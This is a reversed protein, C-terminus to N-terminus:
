KMSPIYGELILKISGIDRREYCQFTIWMSHRMPLVWMQPTHIQLDRVSGRMRLWYKSIIVIAMMVRDSVNDPVAMLTGVSVCMHLLLGILVYHTCQLEQASFTFSAIGSNSTSVIKVWMDDGWCVGLRVCFLRISCHWRVAFYCRECDGIQNRRKEARINCACTHTDSIYTICKAWLSVTYKM